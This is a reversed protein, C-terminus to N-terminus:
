WVRALACASVRAAGRQKLARAAENISAGTTLVDDAVLVHMGSVDDAVGISGALNAARAEKTLKRQDAADDRTLIDALPINTARALERSVLEMHDFGRRAFAEPTAPVFCLADISSFDVRPDGQGNQWATAEELATAMAAAIVPALRLEHADKLKTVLAAAPGEFGCACVCSDLLWPVPEAPPEAGPAAFTASADEHCQTCTLWGFPAGCRPCAWRQSIWPMKARCDECLLEGPVDCCVCRTPWLLERATEKIGMPFLRMPRGRPSIPPTQINYRSAPPKLRSLVCM